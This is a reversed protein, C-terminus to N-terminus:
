VPAVPVQSRREAKTPALCAGSAGLVGDGAKKM